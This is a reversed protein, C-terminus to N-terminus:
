RSAEAFLAGAEGVYTLAAGIAEREPELVATMAALADLMHGRPIGFHRDLFETIYSVYDVFPKSAGLAVADALYCLRHEFDDICRERGDSGYRTGWDPHQRLVRDATARAAAPTAIQLKRAPGSQYM